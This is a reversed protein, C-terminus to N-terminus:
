HDMELSLYKDETLSFKAEEFTPARFTPRVNNSVAVDETPAGVFNSDMSKNGNEDHLVYVAYEGSSLGDFRCKVMGITAPLWQEKFAKKEGPFGDSNNFLACYVQGNTNKIDKIDVTVSLGDQACALGPVLFLTSVFLHKLM